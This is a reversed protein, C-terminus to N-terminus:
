SAGGTGDLAKRPFAKRARAIEDYHEEVWIWVGCLALSLSRGLATLYNAEIRGFDDEAQAYIAGFVADADSHGHIHAIGWDDRTITVRAAEAKWRAM